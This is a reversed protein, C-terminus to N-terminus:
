VKNENLESISTGQKLIRHEYVRQFLIKGGGEAMQGSLVNTQRCKEKKVSL